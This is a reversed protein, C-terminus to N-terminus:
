LRGPVNAENRVPAKLLVDLWMGRTGFAGIGPKEYWEGATVGSFPMKQPRCEEYITNFNEIFM